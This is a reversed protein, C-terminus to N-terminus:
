FEEKIEATTQGCFSFCAKNKLLIQFVSKRSHARFHRRPPDRGFNKKRPLKKISLKDFFFNRPQPGGLISSKPGKKLFRHGFNRGVRFFSTKQTASKKSFDLFHPTIKPPAGQIKKRLKPSIYFTELFFNSPIPPFSTSNQQTKLTAKKKRCCPLACHKELFTQAQSSSCM